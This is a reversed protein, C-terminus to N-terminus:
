RNQIGDFGGANTPDSVPIVAVPSCRPVAGASGPFTTNSTNANVTAPCVLLITRAGTGTRMENKITMCAFDAESTKRRRNM